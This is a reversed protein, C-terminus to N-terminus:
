LKLIELNFFSVEFVSLYFTHVENTSIIKTPKLQQPFTQYDCKEFINSTMTEKIACDCFGKLSVQTSSEAVEIQSRCKKLSRRTLCNRALLLKLLSVGSFFCSSSVTKEFGIALEWVHASQKGRFISRKQINRKKSIKPRIGLPYGFLGYSQKPVTANKQKGCLNWQSFFINSNAANGGLNAM